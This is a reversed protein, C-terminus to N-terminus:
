SQLDQDASSSHRQSELNTSKQKESWQYALSFSPILWLDCSIALSSLLGTEDISTLSNKSQFTDAKKIEKTWLDRDQRSRDDPSRVEFPTISEVGRWPIGRIFELSNQECGVIIIGSLRAIPNM